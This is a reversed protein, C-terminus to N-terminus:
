LHAHALVISRVIELDRVPDTSDVAVIKRFRKAPLPLANGRRGPADLLAM